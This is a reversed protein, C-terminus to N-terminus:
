LDCHSWVKIYKTSLSLSKGPFNQNTSKLRKRLKKNGDQGIL